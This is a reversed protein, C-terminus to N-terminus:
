AAAALGDAVQVEQCLGVVRRGEDLPEDLQRGNIAHDIAPTVLSGDLQEAARLDVEHDHRGALGPCVEDVERPAFSVVDPQTTTCSISAPRQRLLSEKAQAVVALREAPQVGLQSRERRLGLSVAEEVQREDLWLQSLVSALDLRGDDASQRREDRQGVQAPVAVGMRIPGISHMGDLLHGLGPATAAIGVLDEGIVALRQCDRTAQRRVRDFRLPLQDGFEVLAERALLVGALRRGLSRRLAKPEQEAALQLDAGVAPEIKGVLQERTEVHDDGREVDRALLRSGLERTSYQVGQPIWVDVDDGM